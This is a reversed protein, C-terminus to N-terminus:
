RERGINTFIEKLRYILDNIKEKNDFFSGIFLGILAFTILFITKWFGITLFSIALVTGIIAGIIRGKYEKWM